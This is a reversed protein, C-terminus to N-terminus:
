SAEKDVKMSQKRGVNKSVLVYTYGRSDVIIAGVEEALRKIDEEKVINRANKLIRIKVAGEQELRRRVEDVLGPHIGKKGINIDARHQAVKIKKLKLVIERFRSM